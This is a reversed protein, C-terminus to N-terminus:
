IVHPLKRWDEPFMISADLYDLKPGFFPWPYIINKGESGSLFAGWWSYSSNSMIFSDANEMAILDIWDEVPATAYEPEHEKPRASGGEFFYADIDQFADRCWPLDDSFIAISRYEQLEIAERYYSMPRLPHHGDENRLHATANDGRRVHIVLLPHPLLYYQEYKPSALEAKAELTPQLVEYVQERVERWLGYDQLYVKARQDIQRAFISVDEGYLAEQPLFWDSSVSFYREYAWEPFCFDKDTAAAIGITGAIQWLQNGLRGSNGLYPCRIM